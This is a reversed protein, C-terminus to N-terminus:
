SLFSRLLSLLSALKYLGVTQCHPGNQFNMLLQLITSLIPKKKGEFSLAGLNFVIFYSICVNKGLKTTLCSIHHSMFNWSPRIITNHHCRQDFLQPTVEEVEAM